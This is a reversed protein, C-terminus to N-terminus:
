DMPLISFLISERLKKLQDRLDGAREFELNRAAQLMEKELRKIEKGVERESMAQYKAQSQAAKLEKRAADPEYTGEIIDKIRKQVGLPTIHHLENHLQQKQRRRETEDLARRM